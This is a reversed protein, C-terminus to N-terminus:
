KNGLALSILHDLFQSYSCGVAALSKPFLSEPTLGPLTNVELAYIGRPSVIFDSRSYHRLGLARHIALALEQLHQKEKPSFNGPCIEKSTGDYKCKYDFFSKEQPPVIEIPLLAYIDNNRFNDLVGCTAERGKICEEVIVKDDYSFALALADELEALNKAMSAGVSSGGNAPKVFWPPSVKKFIFAPLESLDNSNEIVIGHPTRIGHRKFVEKALIKNMAVASPAPRSGTYPISFSELIQQAQGDEGYKGHMANVVVDVNRSLKEPLIPMGDMHWTGDKTILVDKVKYKDPSLHKIVSTGTVLSVDYESSPGGRLVGVRTFM